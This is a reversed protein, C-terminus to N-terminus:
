ARGPIAPRTTNPLAMCRHVTVSAPVQTCNGPLTFYLVNLFNMGTNAVPTWSAGQNVSRIVATAACAYIDGTAPDTVVSYMNSPPQNPLRTFSVQGSVSSSIVICVYFLFIKM